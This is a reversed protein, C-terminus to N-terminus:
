KEHQPQEAAPFDAKQQQAGDPALTESSLGKGRERASEKKEALGAFGVREQEKEDLTELSRRSNHDDEEAGSEGEKPEDQSWDFRGREAGLSFRAKRLGSRENKAIFKFDNMKRRPGLSLKLHALEESRFLPEPTETKKDFYRRLNNEDQHYIDNLINM